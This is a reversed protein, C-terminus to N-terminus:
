DTLRAFSDHDEVAATARKILELNADSQMMDGIALTVLM